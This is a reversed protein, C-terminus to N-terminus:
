TSCFFKMGFGSLKSIVDKCGHSQLLMLTKVKQTLSIIKSNSDSYAFENKINESVPIEYNSYLIFFVKEM